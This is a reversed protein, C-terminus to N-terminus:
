SEGEEVEKVREKLRGDITGPELNSLVVYKSATFIVSKTRRGNTLDILLDGDRAVQISRKVPSSRTIAIAVIRDISLYSGFGIHILKASM